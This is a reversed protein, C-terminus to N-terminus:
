DATNDGRGNGNQQRQQVERWKVVNRNHDALSKAFVHGGSGDAVFYLYEHKEPKLVAALSARGPNAIPGPPLGTVAYTNYPSDFKWDNRTLARGLDGNGNTLAFIVTPDSQLKMGNELRNVFVGAVRAREAAIGTEKEVISALVLAQQPSELPLEPVRGKWAEALAQDMAHQMREILASRSDGYAYHYTEPLLSGNKPIQKIEGTLAPEKELLSLVQASTLGEPVTLRRVVTRGQRMQELVGQMSIGAAFAYEGAKLERVSGGLKAGAIFLLPSDIVGAEGLTLAIAEIGSGRPIVVSEARDLPGPAMIRMAGWLGTGAAATVVILAGAAIRLGWGM